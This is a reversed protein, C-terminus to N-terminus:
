KPGGGVTGWGWGGIRPTSRPPLPLSPPNKFFLNSYFQNEGGGGGGGRHPPVSVPPVVPPSPSSDISYLSNERYEISNKHFLFSNNNINYYSYFFPYKIYYSILFIKKKMFYLFNKHIFFINSFVPNERKSVTPFIYSFRLKNKNVIKYVQSVDIIYNNSAFDINRNNTKQFYFFLMKLRIISKSFKSFNNLLFKNKDIMPSNMKEEEIFKQWVSYINKPSTSFIQSSSTKLLNELTISETCYIVSELFSKPFDLLISLYSPHVKLYWLHSVPSILQIYGLQYRRIVSWTYEVDCDPCFYRQIQENKFMKPSEIKHLKSYTGCACEFDKLPGFIRECFLGGKHPKFTKYHLTNANTVEGFRKGNPLVKEAWEKIKEPSAISITVLKFENLKSYKMLPAELKSQNDSLFAKQKQTWDFWKNKIQKKYKTSYPFFHIMEYSNTFSNDKKLFRKLPYSLIFAEIQNKTLFQFSQFNQFDFYNTKKSLFSQNRYFLCIRNKKYILFSM